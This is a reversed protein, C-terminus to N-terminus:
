PVRPSLWPAAAPCTGMPAAFLPVPAPFSTRYQSHQEISPISTQSHHKTSPISTQSHHETSPISSHVPFAPKPISTQAPFAPKPISSQVPFAARPQSHLNTIPISSQVPFAPKPISTQVPFAARTQSHAAVVVVVSSINQKGASQQLFPETPATGSGAGHSTNMDNILGQRLELFLYKFRFRM